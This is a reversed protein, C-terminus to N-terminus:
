HKTLRQGDLKAAAPDDVQFSIDLGLNGGKEDTQGERFRTAPTRAIPL